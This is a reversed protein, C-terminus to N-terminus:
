TLEDEEYGIAAIKSELHRLVALRLTSALSQNPQREVDYKAILSALPRDRAMRQLCTWFAAELAISTRHGNLSFSKKVLQSM